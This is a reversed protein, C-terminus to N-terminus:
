KLSKVLDYFSITQKTEFWKNFDSWENKRNYIYHAFPNILKVLDDCGVLWFYLSNFDPKNFTDILKNVRPDSQLVILCNIKEFDEVIKNWNFRFQQFGLTYIWELFNDKLSDNVIFVVKVESPKLNFM